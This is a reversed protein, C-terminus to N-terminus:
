IVDFRPLPQDLIASCPFASYDMPLFPLGPSISQKYRIVGADEQEWYFHLVYIEIRDGM